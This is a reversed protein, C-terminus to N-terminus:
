RKAAKVEIRHCARCDRRGERTIYTNVEDYEHGRPCNTVMRGRAGRQANERRTVPELHDPRVCNRVRCLHDLDYGSPITKGHLFWSYRHAVIQKGGRTLHGYGRGNTSGRWLWCTPTQEVKRWFAAVQRLAKTDGHWCWHIDQICDRMVGKHDRGRHETM